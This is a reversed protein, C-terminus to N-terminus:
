PVCSALDSDAALGTVHVEDTLGPTTGRVAECIQRAQTKGLHNAPLDTKVTTATGSVSVEVVHDYWDAKAGTGTGGFNARLYREVQRSQPTSGATTSQSRSKTPKSSRKNQQPRAPPATTGVTPTGTTVTPTTQPAAPTSTAGGDGDDNGGCGVVLACLLLLLLGSSPKL